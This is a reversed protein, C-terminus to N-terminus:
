MRGSRETVWYQNDDYQDCWFNVFEYTDKVTDGSFPDLSIIDVTFNYYDYSGEAPPHEAELWLDFGIIGLGASSIAVLWSSSVLGVIGIAGSGIAVVGSVKDFVPKEYKARGNEDGTQEAHVIVMKTNDPLSDKISEKYAEARENSLGFVFITAKEKPRAAIEAIVVFCSEGGAMHGDSDLISIPCNNCYAFM